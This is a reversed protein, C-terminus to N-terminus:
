STYESLARELEAIHDDSDAGGVEALEREFAAIHDDAAHTHDDSAGDPSVAKMHAELHAKAAAQNTLGQTSGLRALANRVGAANPPGGPTKHHPLAWTSQEATDGARKGACIASYCSAPTSSSACHSMAAGGDWATSDVAATEFHSAATEPEDDQDQFGAALQRALQRSAAEIDGVLLTHESLHTAILTTLGDVDRIELKAGYPGRMFQQWGGTIGSKDAPEGPEEAGPPLPCTAGAMALADHAAQIHSQDATSHRAGAAVQDRAGGELDRGSALELMQWLNAKEPETLLGAPLAPTKGNGTVMSAVALLALPNAPVPTLSNEMVQVKAFYHVDERRPVGAALARKALRPNGRELAAFGHYDELSHWGISTAPIAGDAILTRFDGVGTVNSLRSRHRLEMGDPTMTSVGIPRDDAHYALLPVKFAVDGYAGPLFCRDARDITGITSAVGSIVDDAVEARVALSYAKEM